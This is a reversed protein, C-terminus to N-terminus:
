TNYEMKLWIFGDEAPELGNLPKLITRSPFVFEYQGPHTNSKIAEMVAFKQGKPVVVKFVNKGIDMNVKLGEKTMPRGSTSYLGEQKYFGKERLNKLNDAYGIDNVRRDIVIDHDFSMGHQKITTDIEKLNKTDKRDLRGYQKDIKFQGSETIFATNKVIEGEPHTEYWDRLEVHSMKEATFPDIFQKHTLSTNEKLAQQAKKILNKQEVNDSNKYKQILDQATTETGGVVWKKDYGYANLASSHIIDPAIAYESLLEAPHGTIKGKNDKVVQRYETETLEKPKPNTLVEVAKERDRKTDASGNPASGGILGPRGKHNHNGSGKGGNEIKLIDGRLSTNLSMQVGGNKVM